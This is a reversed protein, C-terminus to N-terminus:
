TSRPARAGRFRALPLFYPDALRRAAALLRRSDQSSTPGPPPVILTWDDTAERPCRMEARMPRAYRSGYMQSVVVGWAEGERVLLCVLFANGSLPYVIGEHVRRRSM